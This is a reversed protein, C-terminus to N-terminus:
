SWSVEEIGINRQCQSCSAVSTGFAGDLSKETMELRPDDYIESARVGVISM